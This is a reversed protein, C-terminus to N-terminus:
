DVPLNNARADIAGRWREIYGIGRVLPPPLSAVLPRFDRESLVWLTTATVGVAGVGMLSLAIVSDPMGFYELTLRALLAAGSVVVGLLAPGMQCHLYSRWHAGTAQLALRGSALYMAFIAVGVGVAVGSMGFATGILAGALVLAAYLVQNRLEGYVRGASQAVIGAVHYLVRFYGFLCFVQLPGVAGAWRSGYLSVVLQPAVVAMTGMIPASIAATVRTMLLFARRLRGPDDQLQSLTPFLVASMVGTSYTFPVSMLSYARTYLGLSEAGFARGVVLNDGNRALYNMWGSLSSGVGFHLLQGLETRSLLPWVSHPVTILHAAASLITQALGAFVLSWVGHGLLALPIAVGAYGALYSFTSIAFRRRYDLRRRLLAGAVISSGQIAFSLSLWRVISTVEPADAVMAGVPAALAFTAAIAMGLGVSFTFATRIHRETLDRRQVLANGIGLDGFGSALGLVVFALSVLGFDSPELLRALVLGVVFQSAGSVITSGFRWGAARTARATLGDTAM